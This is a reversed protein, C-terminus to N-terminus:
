LLLCGAPTDPAATLGLLGQGATVGACSGWWPGTLIATWPDDMSSDRVGLATMVQQPLLELYLFDQDQFSGEINTKMASYFLGDPDAGWTWSDEKEQVGSRSLFRPYGKAFPADCLAPDILPAWGFALDSVAQYEEPSATKARIRAMTGSARAEEITPNEITPDLARAADYAAEYACPASLIGSRLQAAVQKTTTPQKAHREAITAWASGAEALATGEAGIATGISTLLAAGDRWAATVSEPASAFLPDQYTALLSRLLM